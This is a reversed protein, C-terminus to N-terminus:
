RSRDFHRPQAEIVVRLAPAPRRRGFVQATQADM